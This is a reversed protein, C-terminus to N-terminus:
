NTNATGYFTCTGPSHYKSEIELLESKSIKKNVYNERASKKEYNNIGTTM